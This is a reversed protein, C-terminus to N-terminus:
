VQVYESSGSFDGPFETNSRWQHSAIRRQTFLELGSRVKLENDDIYYYQVSNISDIACYKLCPSLTSVNWWSPCCVRLSYLLSLISRVFPCWFCINYTNVEEWDFYQLRNMNCKYICVNSWLAVYWCPPNLSYAHVFVLWLNCRMEVWSRPARSRLGHLWYLTCADCAHWPSIPNIWTGKEKSRRDPQWVPGFLQRTSVLDGALPVGRIQSRSLIKLLWGM